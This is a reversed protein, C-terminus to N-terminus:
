GAPPQTDRLSDRAFMREAFPVLGPHRSRWDLEPFRLDLYGLAVAVALCAVTAIFIVLPWRRRVFMLTAVLSTLVAGAIALPHIPDNLIMWAFLITVGPTLYIYASTKMPGLIKVATNWTVFCLASAVLGLFLVCGLTAPNLIDAWTVHFGFVATLPLMFLLGYLFIRRTVLTTNYGHGDLKRIFVSYFAWSIAALICLGDGLPNLKLEHGAFSVMAVGAIAIVFGLFFSRTLKEERIFIRTAIAVFFPATSIIVSCNSSNTYTLAINEFLFYLVVGSLAAGALYWEHRRSTLVLKQRKALLLAVIPADQPMGLAARAAVRDPQMPIHAAFPHGVFTAPIGAKEYIAPEFPFLCLVHDAAARIKEIRGPRWAWISPSVFHATKIGQAKLQTELGLNFDPADIGIFLDPRHAPELLKAAFQRRLGMIRRYNRLADVYGFVALDEYPWWADFGAAAM